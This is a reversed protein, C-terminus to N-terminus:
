ARLATSRRFADGGGGGGFALLGTRRLLDRDAERLREGSLLRTRRFEGGGRRRDGALRGNEGLRREEEFSEGGGLRREGGRREGLREYFHKPPQVPLKGAQDEHLNCNKKESNEAGAPIEVRREM